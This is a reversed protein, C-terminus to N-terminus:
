EYEALDMRLGDHNGYVNFYRLAVEQNFLLVLLFLRM